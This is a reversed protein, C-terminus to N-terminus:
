LTSRRAVSTLTPIIPPSAFLSTRAMWVVWASTSKTAGPSSSQLTTCTRRRYNIIIYRNCQTVLSPNCNNAFYLHLPTSLYKKKKKSLVTMKFLEKNNNMSIIENIVKKYYLIFWSVKQFKIHHHAISCVFKVFHDLARGVSLQSIGGQTGRIVAQYSGTAM